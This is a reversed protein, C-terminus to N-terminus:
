RLEDQLFHQLDELMLNAALIGGSTNWIPDSVEFVRENESAGLTQFLPDNLWEDAQSLGEGDGTEYTFYFIVDGDAEALREKGIVEAFGEVNQSAPRNFGVQNLIVGSFSDLQYIRTSGGLFRIVSVELDLREGAMASTEAVKAQYAEMLGRGEEELDLVSAYFSFNEQWDGKLTESFVTPAIMSLQDYVAEQRLKNGIILDPELAAIAEINVQSETGVDATEEMRDEIHDYWPDGIWSRVAGVPTVGLALLAETGENTLIVVRNVDDEITTEGMAHTVIRPDDPTESVPETTTAPDAETPEGADAAPAEAPACAVLVLSFLLLFALITKKM